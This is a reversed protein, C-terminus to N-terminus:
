IYLHNTNKFLQKSKLAEAINPKQLSSAQVMKIKHISQFGQLSISDATLLDVYSVLLLCPLGKVVSISLIASSLGTLINPMELMKIDDTQTFSKSALSRVLPEEGDLEEVRYESIHRSTLCIINCGTDTLGLITNALILFEQQKLEREVSVITFDTGGYIKGIAVDQDHRKALLDGCLLSQDCGLNAYISALNGECIILLNKEKFLCVFSLKFEECYSEEQADLDEDDIIRSKPALVEGFFSAM